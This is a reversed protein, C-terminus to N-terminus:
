PSVIHPCNVTVRARKIVPGGRRLLKYAKPVPPKNYIYGNASPIGHDMSRQRKDSTPRWKFLYISAEKILTLLKMVKHTYPYTKSHLKDHLTTTTPKRGLDVDGVIRSDDLNKIGPM